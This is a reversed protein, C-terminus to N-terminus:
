TFIESLACAACVTSTYLSQQSRQRKKVCNQLFQLCTRSWSPRRKQRKTSLFSILRGLLNLGLGQLLLWESASTFEPGKLCRWMLLYFMHIEKLISSEPPEFEGGGGGGGARVVTLNRHTARAPTKSAEFQGTYISRITSSNTKMKARPKSMGDILVTM